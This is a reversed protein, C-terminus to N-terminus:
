LARRLELYRALVAARSREPRLDLTHVGLRTLRRLVVSREATLDQLVLRRYVAAEDLDPQPQDLESLIPDRLAVLLVVHRRALRALYGELELADASEVFDTLIVILSRKKHNKELLESLVRFNSEAARPALSLTAELLLALVRRADRVPVWSRVVADFAAFGLRDGHRRAAQALAVTTNLAHDLKCLGSVQAAMLRGADVALVVSQSREERFTRVILREARATARWDVHRPDDGETYRRLGDLEVGAGRARARRAGEQADPGLLQGQETGPNPLVCVIPADVREVFRREFLGLVSASLGHLPGVPLLGRRAPTWREAVIASSAPALTLPGLALDGGLSPGREDLLSVVLSRATPNHVHYTAVFPEGLRSRSPLECRVQVRAERLTLRLDLAALSVVLGLCLWAPGVLWASQATAVALLAALTLGAVLRASPRM